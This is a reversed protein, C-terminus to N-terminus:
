KVPVCNDRDPQSPQCDDDPHHMLCINRGAYDALNLKTAVIGPASCGSVQGVITAKCCTLNSICSNPSPYMGGSACSGLESIPRPEVRIAWKAYEKVGDFRICPSNVTVIGSAPDLSPDTYIISSGNNQPFYTENANNCSDGITGKIFKTNLVCWEVTAADCCHNLEVERQYTCTLDLRKGNEKTYSTNTFFRSQVNFRATFVNDEGLCYGDVLPRHCQVQPIQQMKSSGFYGCQPSGRPCISTFKYYPLFRDIINQFYPSSKHANKITGWRESPRAGGLVADYPGEDALAPTNGLVTGDHIKIPLQTRVIRKAGGANPHEDICTMAIETSGPSTSTIVLPGKSGDLNTNNSYWRQEQGNLAGIPFRLMSGADHAAGSSSNHPSRYAIDGNQGLTVFASPSLSWHYNGINSWTSTFAATKTSCDTDRSSLGLAWGYMMDVVVLPPQPTIATENLIRTLGVGENITVGMNKDQRIITFTDDTGSTGKGEVLKCGPGNCSNGSCGIGGIQRTQYGPAWGECAGNVSGVLVPKIGYTKLSRNIANDIPKMAESEPTVGEAGYSGRGIFSRRQAGFAKWLGSAFVPWVPESKIVAHIALGKSAPHYVAYCGSETISSPSFSGEAGMKAGTIGTLFNEKTAKSFAMFTPKNQFYQAGKLCRMNALDTYNDDNAIMGSVDITATELAFQRAVSDISAQMVIYFIGDLLAVLAILWFFLFFIMNIWRDLNGKFNRNQSLHSLFM